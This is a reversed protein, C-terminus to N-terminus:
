LRTAVVITRKIVETRGGSEYLEIVLVYYGPRVIKGTSDTGTWTLLGSTGLLQNQALTQIWQGSSSYIKFTGMWGTQELHYGISTFTPGSSGEPDFVEPEIHILETEFEGTITQSNSRGPTAFEENGSASQWNMPESAPTLPSIRELSVGKPDRLLPHHLDENYIFTEAIQGNPSLLVVTGGAIPYSPLTPLQLFGGGSSKPYAMKLANPDTTVALYEEPGLILAGKEFVKIQDLDGAEDLTALAWDELSLYKGSSNKIEVFKPDGTRPNFLLENIILDGPQPVDPLMFSILSEPVSNGFCDKIGAIKLEYPQNPEAPSKLLIRIENEASFYLSDQVLSPSFSLNEFGLDMLIPRSFVIRIQMSDIFYASELVPTGQTLNPDFTSNQAGPTGRRPDISPALLSSNSCLFYPNQVELSYGGSALDSGGWNSIAYSLGDIRQGSVSELSIQDGSNLLTPWNKVPLVKGFEKFLHAQSEPILVLFEGPQIWFDDLVTETRSNSLRVGELRYEREGAHFLELYEANPLDQDARPAPMLENIVLAKPEISTPDSFTFNILTDLLFNGNLDPIQHITLAYVRDRELKELFTLVVLSDQKLEVREPNIGELEYAIPFISFVPDLPESFQIMLSAESYGKAQVAKPPLEDEVLDGFEFDDMIWRAASGSGHGYRIELTLIAETVSKLEDPVKIDFRRFEQDENSFESDGGIQVPFTFDGDLSEGWSYFVLAPRNGSGNRASKAYLELEPNEFDGPNLRVWIKGDFTSIPQVALAKSGGRGQGSIQFIRASNANVENGYWNPLFELPYNVAQFGTEFDQIQGYALTKGLGLLVPFLFLLSRVFFHKM